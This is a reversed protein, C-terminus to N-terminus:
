DDLFMLYEAARGRLRRRIEAEKEDSVTKTKESEDVLPLPKIGGCDELTNEDAFKGFKYKRRIEEPFYNDPESYVFKKKEDMDNM